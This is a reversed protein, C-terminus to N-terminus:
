NATSRKRHDIKTFGFRTAKEWIENWRRGSTVLTRLSLVEAVGRLTWRMGSGGLRQKAVTKCAAETVGSGIPLEMARYLHYNMKELHNGFYSIAKELAEAASSGDGVRKREQRFDELLGAAAETDHKLRHCAEELWLAQLSKKGHMYPAVLALYESVHWFDVIQWTTRPELWAWLEHAGDAIGVYRAEPYTERIRELETDMKEFFTAKGSEPANAVYITDIREGEDDYFTITGVMVQRWGDDLILTCTGDVGVAVTKVQRGAPAAPLAYTWNDKEAVVSAVDGAVEAVYSRSVKRGHQAFDKVVVTADNTADKFSTQKAFLPTATRMIRAGYDLPCYTRGGKSGQYVHREVRAIGYPTQYNKPRQGCSTLKRGGVEIKGGDTDFRRLCEGTAAAGAENMAHQLKTESELMSDGPMFTVSVTISGEENTALEAPIGCM